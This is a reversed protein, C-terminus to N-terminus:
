RRPATWRGLLVGLLLTGGLLAVVEGFLAHALPLGITVAAVLVGVWIWRRWGSLPAAAPGRKGARKSAAPKSAAPRTSAPRPASRAGSM